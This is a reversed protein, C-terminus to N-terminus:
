VNRYHYHSEKESIGLIEGTCVNCTQRCNEEAWKPYDHCAKPIDFSGCTSLKDICLPPITTPGGLVFSIYMNRNGSRMRQNRSHQNSIILYSLSMICIKAYM